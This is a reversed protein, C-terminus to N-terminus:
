LGGLLVGLDGPVDFDTLMGEDVVGSEVNADLLSDRAVGVIKRGHLVDVDEGKWFHEALM